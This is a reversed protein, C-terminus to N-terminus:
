ETKTNSAYATYLTIGINGQRLFFIIGYLDTAIDNFQELKNMSLKQFIPLRVIIFLVVYFIDPIRINQKVSWTTM